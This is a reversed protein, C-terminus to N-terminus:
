TSSLLGGRHYLPWLEQSCIWFDRTRNGLSRSKRLLLPDPVPDVWLVISSNNRLLHYRSRDLFGLIRGHPNTAIFLRCGRDAFSPVLKASLRPDSPITRERVLAVSHLKIRTFLLRHLDIRVRLHWACLNLCTEPLLIRVACSHSKTCSVPYWINPSSHAADLYPCSTGEFRRYCDVLSCLAVHWFATVTSYPHESALRCKHIVSIDWELKIDTM